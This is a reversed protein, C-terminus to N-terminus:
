SKWSARLVDPESVQAPEGVVLSPTPRKERIRTTIDLGRSLKSARFAHMYNRDLNVLNVSGPTLWQTLTRRVLFGAKTDYDREGVVEYNSVQALGELCLTVVNGYIHPHAEISSGPEMRWHLVVFPDGGPHAEISTGPGNERLEPPALDVLRVAHAALTHLYRDQGLPSTDKVLSRAAPLVEKLFDDYDLREAGPDVRRAHTLGPIGAAAFAAAATAMFCRREVLVGRSSERAEGLPAGQLEDDRM